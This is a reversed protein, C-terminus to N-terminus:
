SQSYEAWQIGSVNEYCASELAFNYNAYSGQPLDALSACQPLLRVTRCEAPVNASGASQRIIIFHKGQYYELPEDCAYFTEPVLYAVPDEHLAIGATGPGFDLNGTSFGEPNTDPTLKWGAPAPPTGGATVVTSDGASLSDITGNQFFVPGKSPSVGIQSEGAGVHITTIFSNHIPPDFDHEPQTLNVILNFGKSKSLSPYKAADRRYTPSALAVSGLGAALIVNFLMKESNLITCSTHILRSFFLPSVLLNPASSSTVSILSVARVSTNIAPRGPGSRGNSQCNLKLMPMYTKYRPPLLAGDVM